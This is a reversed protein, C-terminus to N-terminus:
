RRRSRHRRGGRRAAPATVQAVRKMCAFYIRRGIEELEM